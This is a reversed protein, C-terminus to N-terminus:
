TKSGCDRVSWQSPAQSGVSLSEAQCQFPVDRGHIAFTSLRHSEAVNSTSFLTRHM